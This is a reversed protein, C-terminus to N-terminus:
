AAVVVGNAPVAPTAVCVGLKRPKGSPTEEPLMSVVNSMVKDDDNLAGNIVLLPPVVAEASAASNVAIDLPRAYKLM